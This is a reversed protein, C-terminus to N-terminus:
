KFVLGWTSRAALRSSPCSEVGAAFFVESFYAPTTSILAPRTGWFTWPCEAPSLAASYWFRVIYLCSILRLSGPFLDTYERALARLPFVAPRPPNRIKNCCCRWFYSVLAAFFLVRVYEAVFRSSRRPGRGQFIVRSAQIFSRM